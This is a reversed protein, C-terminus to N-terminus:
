TFCSTKLWCNKTRGFAFRGATSNQRAQPIPEPEVRSPRKSPAADHLAKPVVKPWQHPDSAISIQSCRLTVAINIYGGSFQHYFKISSRYTWATPFASSALGHLVWVWCTHWRESSPWNKLVSPTGAHWQQSIWHSVSTRASSLRNNLLENTVQMSCEDKWKHMSSTLGQGLWGPKM